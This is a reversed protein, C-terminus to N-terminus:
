IFSDWISHRIKPGNDTKSPMAIINTLTSRESKALLAWEAGPSAKNRKGAHRQPTAKTHM